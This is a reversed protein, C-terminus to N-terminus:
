KKLIDNNNTKKPEKLYIKQPKEERKEDYDVHVQMNRM